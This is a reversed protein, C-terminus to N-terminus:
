GVIPLGAQSWALIGGDIDAVDSFGLKSMLDRTAGSRNGSHCYLLYPVNPDLAEIQNAFDDGYFDIMTAGELHGAAFEDATRVDLVVLGAPPSEIISEADNPSVIRVGAASGSAVATTSNGSGSGCSAALLAFVLVTLSASRRLKM